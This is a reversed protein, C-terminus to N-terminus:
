TRQQRSRSTVNEDLKMFYCDLQMAVSDANGHETTVTKNGSATQPTTVIALQKHNSDLGASSFNQM